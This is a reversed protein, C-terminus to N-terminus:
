EHMRLTSPPACTRRGHRRAPRYPTAQRDRDRALRVPPAFSLSDRLAWALLAGVGAIGLLAKTENDVPARMFADNICWRWVSVVRPTAAARRWAGGSPAASAQLIM